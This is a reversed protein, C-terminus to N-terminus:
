EKTGHLVLELDAAYDFEPDNESDHCATCRERSSPFLYKLAPDRDSDAVPEGRAWRVHDSGSGHCSECQVNVMGPTKEYSHFGNFFGYGTVHCKLCNPNYDQSEKVIPEMARSHGTRKWQHYELAHCESCAEAGLFRSVDLQSTAPVVDKGVEQLESNYRKVLEALVPDDEISDDMEQARGEMREVKMKEDLYIDVVGLYKGEDGPMVLPINNVLYPERKVNAGNGVIMLDIGSVNRALDRAHLWGTHALCVILDCKPRLEELMERAVIAPDTIVLRHEGKERDWPLGTTEDLPRVVGFIGVRLGGWEFGLFRKPALRKIIFPKLFREGTEFYSVNASIIPVGTERMRRLLFDQGLLADSSGFNVCDVNMLSYAEFLYNARVEELAGRAGIMDGCDLHLVSASDNAAALNVYAARRAM